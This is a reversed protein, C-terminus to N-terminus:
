GSILEQENEQAARQMGEIWFVWFSGRPMGQHSDEELCAAELITLAHSDNHQLKDVMLADNTYWMHVMDEVFKWQFKFDEPNDIAWPDLGQILEKVSTAHHPPRSYGGPGYVNITDQGGRILLRIIMSKDAGPFAKGNWKVNCTQIDPSSWGSVSETAEANQQWEDKTSNVFTYERPLAIGKERPDSNKTPVVGTISTTRTKKQPQGSRSRTDLQDKHKAMRAYQGAEKHEGQEKCYTSITRLTKAGGEERSPSLQSTTDEKKARKAHQPLESTTDDNSRKEGQGTQKEQTWDLELGNLIHLSDYERKNHCGLCTTLGCKKCKQMCASTRNECTHCMADHSSVKVYETHQEELYAHPQPAM